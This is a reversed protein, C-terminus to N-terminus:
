RVSNDLLCAGALSRRLGERNVSEFRTDLALSSITFVSGPKSSWPSRVCDLQDPDQAYHVTSGLLRGPVTFRSSTNPQAPCGQQPFRPVAGAAFSTHHEIATERSLFLQVFLVVQPFGHGVERGVLPEVFLLAFLGALLELALEIDREPGRQVLAEVDEGSRPRPSGDQEKDVAPVPVGEATLIEAKDGAARDGRTNSGDDDVVGQAGLHGDLLDHALAPRGDGPEVVVGLGEAAVARPDVYGAVRCTSVQCRHKREGVPLTVVPQGGVDDLAAARDAAEKVKPGEGVGVQLGFQLQSPPLDQSVARYETDGVLSRRQEYAVPAFLRRLQTPLRVVEQLSPPRTAKSSLM